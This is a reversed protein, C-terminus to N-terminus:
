NFDTRGSGSFNYKELLKFFNHRNYSLKIKEVTKLKITHPNPGTKPPPLSGSTAPEESRPHSWAFRTQLKDLARALAPPARARLQKIEDSPTLGITSFRQDVVKWSHSSPCNSVTESGKKSILCYNKRRLNTLNTFPPLCAIEGSTQCM